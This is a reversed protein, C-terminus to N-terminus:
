VFREAHTNETKGANQVINKPSHKLANKSQKLLTKKANEGRGCNIYLIALFIFTLNDINNQLLTVTSLSWKEYILIGFVNWFCEWFPGSFAGLVSGFREAFRKVM